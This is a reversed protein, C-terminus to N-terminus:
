CKAACCGGRRARGAVTAVVRQTGVSPRRRCGLERGPVRGHRAGATADRPLLCVNLAERADVALNRWALLAARKAPSAPRRWDHKRVEALALAHLASAVHALRADVIRVMARCTHRVTRVDVLNDYSMCRRTDPNLLHEVVLPLLEAPLDTLAEPVSERWVYSMTNTQARV